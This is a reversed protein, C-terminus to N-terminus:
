EIIRPVRYFSEHRDPANRLAEDQTQSPKLRDERQVNTIELVHSTPNAGSTDLKNLQEIHTLINSLQSAFLEQEDGSLELRALRAIHAVDIQM